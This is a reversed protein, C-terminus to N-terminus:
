TQIQPATPEWMHKETAESDNKYAVCDIGFGGLTLVISNNWNIYLHQFDSPGKKIITPILVSAKFPATVNRVKYCCM